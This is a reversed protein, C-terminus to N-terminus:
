STLCDATLMAALQEDEGDQPEDLASQLTNSEFDILAIQKRFWEPKAPDPTVVHRHVLVNCLGVIEDLIEKSTKRGHLSPETVEQEICISPPTARREWDRLAEQDAARIAPGNDGNYRGNAECEAIWERQQAAYKAARSYTSM